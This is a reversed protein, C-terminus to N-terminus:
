MELAEIISKEQKRQGGSNNRLSDMFKYNQTIM